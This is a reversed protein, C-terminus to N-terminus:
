VNKQRQQEETQELCVGVAELTCYTEILGQSRESPYSHIYFSGSQIPLTKVLTTSGHCTPVSGSGRIRVVSNLIRIRSKEETAKMIAVIHKKRRKKSKVKQLYM